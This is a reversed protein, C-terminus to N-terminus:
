PVLAEEEIWEMRHALMTDNDFEFFGRFSRGALVGPL